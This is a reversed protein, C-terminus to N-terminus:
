TNDHYNGKSQICLTVGVCILAFGACTRPTLAPEGLAQSALATFIFTFANCMVVALSLDSTGLARIYLASGLQNLAFTVLFPWHMLLNKTRRLAQGLCGQWASPRTTTEEGKEAKAATEEAQQGARRLLPNTCGWLMGVLLFSLM